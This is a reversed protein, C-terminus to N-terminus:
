AISATFGAPALAKDADTVARGRGSGGEAAGADSAPRQLLVRSPCTIVSVQDGTAPAVPYTM